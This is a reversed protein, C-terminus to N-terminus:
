NLKRKSRSSQPVNFVDEVKKVMHIANVFFGVVTFPFSRSPQVISGSLSGLDPSFGRKYVTQLLWGRQSIQSWVGPKKRAQVFIQRRFPAGNDTVTKLGGFCHSQPPRFQALNQFLFDGIFETM